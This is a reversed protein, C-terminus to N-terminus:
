KEDAYINMQCQRCDFELRFRRGDGLRLFLPEKWQPLKGGHRVCFGLEHRLCYRCQMLPLAPNSVPNSAVAVKTDATPKRRDHEQMMPAPVSALAREVALRRLASLQSSPIFYNFDDPIDVGMCEFPTGGLRSLQLTINDRQPTKAQQHEAPMSVEVDGMRLSFGDATARLGMSVPVKREASPKALLREMAQDSSRYLAMGRRLGPPMALPFLRNGEAKNVRFGELERRENFFCLGDGNVFAATGAVTLSAAKIEKVRGVMQGLAKPTDPSAQGPHRGDAFYTTYGRNFTRDLDPHFTYRCKGASTRGYSGPHTAIYNDILMSYAATVNKVYALDKLRGEIKFSVAGAEILQGMYRSLNLDKLSLLHRQREWQRGDADVLDFQLRCFQACKGRNASRGFCYESAYCRGSYSVCLAGHVFVELEMQPVQRHISAVEEITLERALVARRFGQQLLWGVHDSTRNDAQTSAHLAFPLGAALPLLSMDQILVADVGAEALQGLLRRAEEREDDRVLTNVTAYVRASFQHAYRCLTAIDDISNGAAARAGFHPPGIYVADAGHDIAAMGGQLNKAPALLELLTM